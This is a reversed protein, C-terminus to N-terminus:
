LKSWRGKQVLKGKEIIDYFYIGSPLSGITLKTNEDKSMISKVIAGTSSYITIKKANLNSGQIYLVDNAPNPYLLYDQAVIGKTNETVATPNGYKDIKFVFLDLNNATNNYDYYMGMVFCSGDPMAKIRTVDNVDAFSYFKSWNLNLDSDCNGIQIVNTNAGDGVPWLGKNTGGFFMNSPSTFDINQFWNGDKFGEFQSYFPLKLIKIAKTTIDTKSIINNVNGSPNPDGYGAGCMYISNGSGKVFTNTNYDTYTAVPLAYEFLVTDIITFTSDLIHFKRNINHFGNGIYVATGITDKSWFAWKNKIKTFNSTTKYYNLSTDITIFEKYIISDFNNNVKYIYPISVNTQGNYFYGNIVYDNYDKSLFVISFSFASNSNNPLPAIIKKSYQVILNTDVKLMCFKPIGGDYLASMIILTDNKQMFDSAYFNINGPLQINVQQLLTGSSDIKILKVIKSTDWDYDEYLMYYNNGIQEIGVPMDSKTSQNYNKIFQNQAKICNNAFLLTILCLMKNM